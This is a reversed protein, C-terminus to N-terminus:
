RLTQNISKPTSHIDVAPFHANSPVLHLLISTKHPSPLSPPCPILSSILSFYYHLPSFRPSSPLFLFPSLPTQTTHPDHPLASEIKRFNKIPASWILQRETNTM